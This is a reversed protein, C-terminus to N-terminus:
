NAVQKKYPNSISAANWCTWSAKCDFHCDPKSPTWEVHASGDMCNLTVTPALGCPLGVLLSSECVTSSYGSAVAILLWSAIYSFM